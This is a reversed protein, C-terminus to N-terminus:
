RDRGGHRVARGAPFAAVRGAPCRARNLKARPRAVATSQSTEGHAKSNVEPRPNECDIAGAGLGGKFHPKAASVTTGRSGIELPFGLLSLRSVPRRLRACYRCFKDPM